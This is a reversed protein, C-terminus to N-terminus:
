SYMTKRKKKKKQMFLFKLFDSMLGLTVICLHFLYTYRAFFILYILYVLYILIFCFSLSIMDRVFRNTYVLQWDNFMYRVKKQHLAFTIVLHPLYAPLKQLNSVLTATLVHMFVLDHKKKTRGHERKRTQALPDTKWLYFTSLM